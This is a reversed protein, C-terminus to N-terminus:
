TEEIRNSRYRDALMELIPVAECAPIQVVRHDDDGDEARAVTIFMVDHETPLMLEVWNGNDDEWTLKM